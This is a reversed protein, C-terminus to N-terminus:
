WWSSKQYKNRNSASDVEEGGRGLPWHTTPLILYISFILLRITFRVQSRGAQLMNRWGVISRRQLSYKSRILLFEHFAPAFQMFLLSVLETAQTKSRVTDISRGGRTPSTLALKQPYLPTAHDTNRIGLPWLRPKRSRIFLFSRWINYPHHFGPPHSSRVVYLADTAVTLMTICRQNGYFTNKEKTVLQAVTTEWSPSWEMYNPAQRWM